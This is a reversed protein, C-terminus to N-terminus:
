TFVWILSPGLCHFSVLAHFISINYVSHNQETERKAKGLPRLRNDQCGVIAIDTAVRRFPVGGEQAKRHATVVCRNAQKGERSVCAAIKIRGNAGSCEEGVCWDFIRGSGGPYM